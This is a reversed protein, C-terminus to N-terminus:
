SIDSASRLLIWYRQRPYRGPRDQGQDPETFPQRM